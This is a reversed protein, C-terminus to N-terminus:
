LRGLLIVDAVSYLVGFISVAAAIGIINKPRYTRAIIFFFASVALLVWWVSFGVSGGWHRISLGLSIGLLLWGTIRLVLPPPKIRRGSFLENYPRNMAACLTTWAVFAFILSWVIM